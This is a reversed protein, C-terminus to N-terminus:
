ESPSEGAITYKFLYCSNGLHLPKKSTRSQVIWDLDTPGVLPPGPGVSMKIKIFKREYICKYTM